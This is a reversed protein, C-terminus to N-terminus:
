EHKEDSLQKEHKQLALQFQMNQQEAKECRSKLSEIEKDKADSRRDMEAKLKETKERINEFDNL